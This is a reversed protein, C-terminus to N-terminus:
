VQKVVVHIGANEFIDAFESKRWDDPTEGEELDTPMIDNDEVISRLVALESPKEVFDLYLEGDVFTAVAFKM